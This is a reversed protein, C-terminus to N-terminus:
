RLIRGSPKNTIKTHEFIVDNIERIDRDIEPHCPHTVVRPINRQQTQSANCNGGNRHEWPNLSGNLKFLIFGNFFSSNLFIFGEDNYIIKNCYDNM